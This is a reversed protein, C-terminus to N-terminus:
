LKIAETFRNKGRIYLLTGDEGVEFIIGGGGCGYKWYNLVPALIKSFNKYQLGKHQEVTPIIQYRKTAPECLQWDHVGLAIYSIYDILGIAVADHLNRNKETVKWSSILAEKYNNTQKLGKEIPFLMIPRNTYGHKFHDLSVKEAAYSLVQERTLFGDSKGRNKNTLKSSIFKSSYQILASEVLEAVESVHSTPDCKFIVWDVEKGSSWIEHITQTKKDINGQKFAKRAEIFHDIIRKNGQGHGGGKGIYFPRNDPAPYKLIYVYAGLTEEVIKDFDEELNFSSPDLLRENTM